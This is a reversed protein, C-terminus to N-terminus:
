FLVHSVTGFAHLYFSWSTGSTTADSSGNLSTVTESLGESGAGVVNLGLMSPDVTEGLGGVNMGGVYMQQFYASQNQSMQEVQRRRRMRERSKERERDLREKSWTQRRQRMREAQKRKHDAWKEPHLLKMRMRYEQARTAPSWKAPNTNVLSPNVFAPDFSVASNSYLEQLFSFVDYLTSM